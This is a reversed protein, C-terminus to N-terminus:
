IREGEIFATPTEGDSILYEGALVHDIIRALEDEPSLPAGADLVAYTKLINAGAGSTALFLSDVPDPIDMHYTDGNDMLFYLRLTDSVESGAIGSLSADYQVDNQVWKSVASKSVNHFQTADALVPTYAAGCEIRRLRTDLREDIWTVALWNKITSYAM